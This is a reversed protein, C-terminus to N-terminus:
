FSLSTFFIVCKKPVFYELPSHLYVLTFYYTAVSDLKNTGVIICLRWGLIAVVYNWIGGPLAKMIMWGLHGSPLLFCCWLGWWCECYGRWQWSRKWWSWLWKWCNDRWIWWVGLYDWGPRFQYKYLAYIIQCELLLLIQFDAGETMTWVMVGM